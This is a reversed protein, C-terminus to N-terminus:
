ISGTQRQDLQDKGGVQCSLFVNTCQMSTNEVATETNSKYPVLAVSSDYENTGGTGEQTILNPSISGNAEKNPNNM